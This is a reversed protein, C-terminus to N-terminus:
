LHREADRETPRAIFYQKLGACPVRPTWDPHPADRHEALAKGCWICRELDREIQREEEPTAVHGLLVHKRGQADKFTPLTM